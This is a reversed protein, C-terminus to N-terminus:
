DFDQTSNWLKNKCYMFTYIRGRVEKPLENRKSNFTQKFQKRQWVKLQM